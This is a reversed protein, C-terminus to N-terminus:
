AAAPAIELEEPLWTQIAPNPLETDEVVIVNEADVPGTLPLAPM